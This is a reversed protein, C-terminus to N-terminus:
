ALGGKVGASIPYIELPLFARHLEHAIAVRIVEHRTTTVAAVEPMVAVTEHAEYPLVDRFWGVAGAIAVIAGLVSVAASTVMGAFLLTMGFALAIPWPTPAPMRIADTESEGSNVSEVAM